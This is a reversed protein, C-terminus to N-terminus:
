KTLAVVKEAAEYLDEAVEFKLSSERLIRRGEEVNTGQLRVVMPLDLEISQAAEVIGTAVRDCRLIGGFINVM